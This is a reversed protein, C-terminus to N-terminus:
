AGGILSIGAQIIFYVTIIIGIAALSYVIYEKHGTYYEGTIADRTM